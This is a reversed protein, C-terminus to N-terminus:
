RKQDEEEGGRRREEEGGGGEGQGQGGGQGGEAGAAFLFFLSVRGAYRRNLSSRRNFGAFRSGRPRSITVPWDPSTQKGPRVRASHSDV